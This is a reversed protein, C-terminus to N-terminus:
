QYAKRIYRQWNSISALMFRSHIYDFHNDPWLWDTAEVDDIEFHVNDPVRNEKAIPRKQHLRIQSPRGYWNPQVPSLDIGIIDSEPYQEGMEIAWIGTGTGIDLIKGPSELPALHLHGHCLLTMIHHKLDIRDMEKQSSRVYAQQLLHKVLEAKKSFPRRM